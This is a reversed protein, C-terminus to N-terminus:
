GWPKDPSGIHEELQNPNLPANEYLRVYRRDRGTGESNKISEINYKINM